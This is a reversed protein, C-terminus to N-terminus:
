PGKCTEISSLIQPRGRDCASSEREVFGRDRTEDFVSSHKVFRQYRIPHRYIEHTAEHREIQGAAPAPADDLQGDVRFHNAACALSGATPCKVECSRVHKRCM